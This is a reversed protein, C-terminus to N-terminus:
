KLPQFIRVGANGSACVLYKGDPTFKVSYVASDSVKIKRERSCKEADWVRIEGDLDSSVLRSSDASFDLSTVGSAHGTFVCKREGSFNDRVRITKGYGAYALYRGDRSFAVTMLCDAPDDRVMKVLNGTKMDWVAVVGDCGASVLFKADPSFDLANVAGRHGHLIMAPAPFAPEWLRILGDAGTAALYKLDPSFKIGLVSWEADKAIRKETKKRDSQGASLFRARLKGDLGGWALIKSDASFSVAYVPMSNERFDSLVAGSGFERLVVGGAAGASAVLKGDPSIAINKVAEGSAGWTRCAPLRFSECGRLSGADRPLGSDCGCFCLAAGLLIVVKM